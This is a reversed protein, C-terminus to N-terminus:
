GLLQVGSARLTIVAGSIPTSAAEAVLRFYLRTDAAECKFVEWGRWTAVTVDSGSGETVPYFDVYQRRYADNATLLTFTAQDVLVTTQATYIWCRIAGTMAVGQCTLSLRSLIVGNGVADAVVISLMKAVAAAVSGSAPSTGTPTSTVVFSFTNTDKASVVWNGDVNTWTYGTDIGVVTIRDGVALPHGNSTLTVTKTGAVYSGATVTLSCNISKQTAYATTNAPRTLSDAALFSPTILKGAAATGAALTVSPKISDNYWETVFDTLSKPM